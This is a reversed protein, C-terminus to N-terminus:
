MDRHGQCHPGFFSLGNQQTLIENIKLPLTCFFSSLIRGNVPRRRPVLFWTFASEEYYAQSHFVRVAGNVAPSPSAWLPM